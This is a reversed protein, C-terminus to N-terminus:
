RKPIREICERSIQTFTSLRRQSWNEESDGTQNAVGRDDVRCNGGKDVSATAATEANQILGGKKDPRFFINPRRWHPGSRVRSNRCRRDIARWKEEAERQPDVRNSEDNPEDGVGGMRHRKVCVFANHDRKQQCLARVREQDRGDREREM